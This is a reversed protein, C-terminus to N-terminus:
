GGSIEDTNVLNAWNDVSNQPFYQSVNNFVEKQEETLVVGNNEDRIDGM